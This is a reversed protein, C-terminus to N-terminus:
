AGEGSARDRLLRIRPIAEAAPANTGRYLDRAYRKRGQDMVDFPTPSSGRAGGPDRPRHPRHPRDFGAYHSDRAYCRVPDVWKGRRLRVRRRSRQRPEGLADTLQDRLWGAVHPPLDLRLHRKTGFPVLLTIRERHATM